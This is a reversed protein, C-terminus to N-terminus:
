TTSASRPSTPWSRSPRSSWPRPRSRAATSARVARPRPRRRERRHPHARRPGQVGPGGAQHARAQPHQGPEPAPLARRGRARRPGDQVPPPHRRRDAGALPARDPGPGRGGRARQLHLARHRLRRRGPRLDAPAHGRRRGDEHHDDVPRHHARWRGGAGQRGHDPPHHPTRVAVSILEPPRPLHQRHVAGAHRAFLAYTFRCCSAVIDAYYRRGRRSQPGERVAAILMHGGDFPLMPFWNVLGIFINVAALLLICDSSRRRLLRRRGQRRRRAVLMRQDTNCGTQIAKGYTRLGSPSFIKGLGLFSQGITRGFEIFTQQVAKPASSRRLHPHRRGPVPHRAPRRPPM